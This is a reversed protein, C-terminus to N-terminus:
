HGEQALQQLHQQALQSSPTGPYGKVVKVFEKRALKYQGNNYALLGLKLLSDAVKPQKPFQDVVTQFETRASNNDGTVLYLEGLWYHSNVAFSGNPYAKLYDNMAIIAQKYKKDKIYGYANEYVDQEKLESEEQGIGSLKPSIDTAKATAGAISQQSLASLRHDLDQYVDRQEAQMVKIEHAQMDLRGQLEQIQQEMQDAQGVLRMHQLNAMQQELLKIRQPVTMNSTDAEAVTNQNNQNANASTAQPVLSGQNQQPTANNSATTTSSDTQDSQVYDQTAQSNNPVLPQLANAQGSEVPAINGGTQNAQPVQNVTAQNDAVAFCSSCILLSILLANRM